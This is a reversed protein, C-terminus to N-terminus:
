VQSPNKFEKSELIRWVRSYGVMARFCVFVAVPSHHHVDSGIAKKSLGIDVNFDDIVCGFGMGIAHSSGIRSGQNHSIRPQDLEMEGLDIHYSLLDSHSRHYRFGDEPTNM